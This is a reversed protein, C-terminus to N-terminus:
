SRRASSFLSAKAEVLRRYDTGKDLGKWAQEYAAIAKGIGRSAGTVFAIKGTLAAQTM